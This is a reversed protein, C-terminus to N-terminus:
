GAGAGAGDKRKGELLNRMRSSPRADLEFQPTVSRLEHVALIVQMQVPDAAAATRSSVTLPEQRKHDEPWRQPGATSDDIAISPIRRRLQMAKRRERAFLWIM